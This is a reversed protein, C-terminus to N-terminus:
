PISGIPYNREEYYDAVVDSLLNLEIYGIANENEINNSDQLLTEIREIIANYEKETQIM